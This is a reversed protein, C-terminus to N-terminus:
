LTGRAHRGYRILPEEFYRWSVRAVLYCAVTAIALAPWYPLERGLLPLQVLRLGDLFFMHFLYVFYSVKGISALWRALRGPVAASASAISAVWVACALGFLSYGVAPLVWEVQRAWQFAIMLTITAAGALLRAHRWRTVAGYMGLAGLGGFAIADLRAPVFYYLLDAPFADTLLVLFRVLLALGILAVVVRRLVHGGLYAAFGLLLYASEEVSLSWTITFPLAEAGLFPIVWGNLFLATMWLRHLNEVEHVTLVSALGYVLIAAAFLPVIRFFRRRFFGLM